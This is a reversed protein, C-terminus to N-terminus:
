FTTVQPPRRDWWQRFRARSDGLPEDGRAVLVACEARNVIERSIDGLVYSRLGRSLASGTVVLDYHEARIERLIEELVPGQRLRVQTQVGMSELTAKEHRLNVGLESDSNLLWAAPEEMRPLHAYLAPLEGMVHLLTVTAGTGHAIQGTLRVANDIYRKGGSCILVRSITACKGAVSLVPPEIEKILKYTKSSMWFRGRTEKRVAGIVVLDFSTEKTRQLIESVPDGAKTILEARIGKAQLLAQGRRLSDLLLESQGATEMIGLLTVDAHCGAAVLTGLRVAQDAQESGDSCILIRM